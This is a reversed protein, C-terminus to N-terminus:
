LLLMLLMAIAFVIGLVGFFSGLQKSRSVPLDGAVKGTQGNIAYHYDKDKYRCNILYVPLLVYRVSAHKPKLSNSLPIVSVYGITTSQVADAATNIMRNTARKLEDDPSSDFRDAVYGSLYGSKFDTLESYDFPEISDMLDNDMKVSADVPVKSFKMKGDRLLVYHYVQTVDYDGETSHLIRQANYTITGDVVCDFLWFPVYIGQIESLKKTPLFDKPLLKKGKLFTKIVSPLMDPTIKFPIIANPRLGGKLRDDLIVNNGCFPCKTAATRADTEIEAGCSKCVYVVDEEMIDKSNFNAAYEAWSFEDEEPPNGGKLIFDVDYVSKCSKCVLKGADPQYALTTGCAPCKYETIEPM